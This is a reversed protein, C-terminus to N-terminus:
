AEARGMAVVNYVAFFTSAPLGPTVGIWRVGSQVNGDGKEDTTLELRVAQLPQNWTHPYRKSYIICHPNLRVRNYINKARGTDYLWALLGSKAQYGSYGMQLVTTRAATCDM